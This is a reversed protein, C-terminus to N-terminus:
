RRLEGGRVVRGPRNGTARDGDWVTSGNVIVFSIGAAPCTPTEFTAVDEIKEPDFVVLDAYAGEKITGRDVLGFTAAPLSTMKRVAEELSFLAVDRAYYGLIRPFTGWLRPHPHRDHPLGDSGIMSHPYSLIRRVDGEDMMFYIAGAPQLQAAAKEVSCGMEAAVEALDRGAASPISESWTIFVRTAGMM